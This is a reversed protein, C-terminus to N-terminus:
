VNEHNDRRVIRAEVMSVLRAAEDCSLYYRHDEIDTIEVFSRWRSAYLHVCEMHRMNFFIGYYGFFGLSAFLPVFLRAERPSVRRIDAIDEYRLETAEFVCRIEVAEATLVIRRPISLVLLLVVAVVFSLAWALVYGGEYIRTVLTIIAAMALLYLLSLAVTAGGLKYKFVENM